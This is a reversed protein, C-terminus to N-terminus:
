SIYLRRALADLVANHQVRFTLCVQRGNLRGFQLGYNRGAYRYFDVFFKGMQM